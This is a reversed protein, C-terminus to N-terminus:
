CLSGTTVLVGLLARAMDANSKARHGRRKARREDGDRVYLSRVL